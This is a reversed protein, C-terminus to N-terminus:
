KKSVSIGFHTFDGEIKEIHLVKIWAEVLLAIM